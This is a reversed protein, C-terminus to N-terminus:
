RIRGVESEWGCDIPDAARVRATCVPIRIANVAIRQEPGRPSRDCFSRWDRDNPSRWWKCPTAQRTGEPDRSSQRTKRRTGESRPALRVPAALHNGASEPTHAAANPRQHWPVSVRLFGHRAVAGCHSRAVRRLSGWHTLFRLVFRREEVFSRAPKGSSARSGFTQHSDLESRRSLDFRRCAISREKSNM